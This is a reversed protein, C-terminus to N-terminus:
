RNHDYSGGQAIESYMIRVFADLTVTELNPRFISCEVM